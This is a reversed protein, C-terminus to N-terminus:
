QTENYLETRLLIVFFSDVRIKEYTNTIFYNVYTREYEGYTRTPQYFIKSFCFKSHDDWNVYTGVYTLM